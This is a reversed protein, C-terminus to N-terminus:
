ERGQSKASGMEHILIVTARNSHRNNLFEGEDDASVVYAELINHIIDMTGPIM